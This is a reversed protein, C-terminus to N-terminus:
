KNINHSQFIIINYMSNKCYILNYNVSPVKCNNINEYLFLRLFVYWLFNNKNTILIKYNKFIPADQGLRYM